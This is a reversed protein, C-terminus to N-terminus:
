EKIIYFQAAGSETTTVSFSGGSGTVDAGAVSGYPGQIASSSRLSFASASVTTPGTFSITVDVGSVTISTIMPLVAGSTVLVTAVAKTTNTSGGPPSWTRWVNRTSSAGYLNGVNDWAACTYQQDFDLNTV